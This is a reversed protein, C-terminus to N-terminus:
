IISKYCRIAIHTEELFADPLRFKWSFTTKKKHIAANPLIKVISLILFPIDNHYTPAVHTFPIPLRNIM